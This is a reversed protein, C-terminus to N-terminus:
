LPCRVVLVNRDAHNVVKSAITGLIRGAPGYGHAGIVILNANHEHGAKCIGEAATAFSTEIAEIHDPPLGAALRELDARANARLYEELRADTVRLLDQPMDPPVGLARFLVLKAGTLEALDAATALVGRAQPSSDLAVLIRKM